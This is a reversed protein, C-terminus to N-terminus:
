VGKSLCGSCYYGVDEEPLFTVGDEEVSGRRVQYAPNVGGTEEDIDGIKKGCTSCEM